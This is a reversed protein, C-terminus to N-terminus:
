ARRQSPDQPAVVPAGLPGAVDGEEYTGGVLLAVYLDSFNAIDSGLSCGAEM